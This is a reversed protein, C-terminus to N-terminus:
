TNMNVLNSYVLHSKIVNGIKLLLDLFLPFLKEIKTALPRSKSVPVPSLKTKVEKTFNNV